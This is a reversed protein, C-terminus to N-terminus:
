FQVRIRPLHEAIRSVVEYAITGCWGAQDEASVTEEGQHGILVVEDELAAGPIHTVDIMTVNMCIRGRVPARQGQVLVHAVNSNARDFGDAYGLPLIAIRSDVPARWTCGYGVFEGKRVTKVQAIRTKWTLVPRLDMQGGEVHTSSVKTEKSPWLGYSAIGVRAAGFYAEPFLIAAASCAAHPLPVPFGLERVRTLVRKFTSLQNRAFSHDTTDEINAFHTTLGELRLGPLSKLLDLYEPIEDEEIGYRHTGTEIKFHVKMERGRRAAEKSLAPLSEKNMIVPSGEADVVAEWGSLPVYGLIMVPLKVGAERVRVLEEVSIVSLSHVLGSAEDERAVVELGHGYANAKVVHSLEVGSGLRRRFAHLNHLLAGGDIEVWNLATKALRHRALSM